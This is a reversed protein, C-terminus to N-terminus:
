RQASSKKAGDQAAKCGRQMDNAAIHLRAEGAGAYADPFSKPVALKASNEHHGFDSQRDYQQNTSAEQHATEKNERAHIEPEIRLINEVKFESPWVGVIETPAIRSGNYSDPSPFIRYSALEEVAFVTGPTREAASHSSSGGNFNSQVFTM